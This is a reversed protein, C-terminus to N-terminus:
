WGGQLSSLRRPNGQSEREKRAPAVEESECKRLSPHRKTGLLPVTYPPPPDREKLEQQSSLGRGRFHCPALFVQSCPAALTQM